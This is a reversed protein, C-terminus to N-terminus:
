LGSRIGSSQSLDDGYGRASYYDFSNSLLGAAYRAASPVNLADALSINNSHYRMDIQFVGTGQTGPPAGNEYIPRFGTERIGIAALVNPDIGEEDAADEIAEVNAYARRLSAMDAHAEALARRCNRMRAFFDAYIEQEWEKSLDLNNEDTAIKQNKWLWEL